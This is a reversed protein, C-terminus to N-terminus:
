HHPRFNSGKMAWWNKKSTLETIVDFPKKYDFELRQDM